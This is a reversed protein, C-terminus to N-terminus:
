GPPVCPSQPKPQFAGRYRNLGHEDGTASPRDEEECDDVLVRRFFSNYEDAEELAVIDFAPRSDDGDTMESGSEEDERLGGGLLVHLLRWKRVDFDLVVEPNQVGVFGGYCNGDRKPSDDRPFPPPFLDAPGSSLGRALVNLQAVTFSRAFDDRDNNGSVIGDDDGGVAGAVDPPPPYSAEKWFRPYLLSM